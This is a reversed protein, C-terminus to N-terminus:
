QDEPRAVPHGRVDAQRPWRAHPDLTSKGSGSPGVITFFEGQPIDLTVGDVAKTAGFSRAVSRLSLIPVADSRLRLDSGALPRQGTIV